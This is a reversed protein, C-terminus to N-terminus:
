DSGEKQPSKKKFVNDLKFRYTYIAGDRDVKISISKGEKDYFYKNVEQLSLTHTEKNNISVLVDGIELGIEKANSSERLEVIQYAPMLVYRYNISVDIKTAGDNESSNYADFGKSSYRERVLRKGSQELVIGANNYYFPLKFNGNKKIHIEKNGYDFFYNFRKLINGAVSGNRERYNRAISLASSDPYAVNVNEISFDGIKFEKLKSRKGYVAGSLGKGLFDEFYQNQEYIIGQAKDEFLWVSDSGGTDILLKVPRLSDRIQVQADLYPKSKYLNIPMTVWKKSKKPKFYQPKHLRIFKAQYNVEVIFDKFIDYGIIGHVPVGLRPTFNISSDFVVYVDQNVTIARGVKLTNKRSRLAEITGDGGLGQLYITQVNKIKLSDTNVINFLIPKSVGTDLVFSLQVGNLELPIIM